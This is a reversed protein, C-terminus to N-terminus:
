TPYRRAALRQKKRRHKQLERVQPDRDAKALILSIALQEPTPDKM